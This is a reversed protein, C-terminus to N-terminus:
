SVQVAEQEIEQKALELMYEVQGKLPRYNKKAQERIWTDLEQPIEVKPREPTKGTLMNGEEIFAIIAGKQM